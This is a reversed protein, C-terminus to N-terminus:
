APKKIEDALNIVAQVMNKWSYKQKELRLHPIFFDEGLEYFNVIAAAIHEADPETILGTKKEVVMAPLGGVNTVITPKEFYYALPTVGSQTANRYPQIVVDAARMYFKVESDTIFSTHLYLQGALDKQAIIDQYNKEDDYFEGAVLLKVGTAASHRYKSKLIEMAELLIDLGKYKRIFGFFLIVKESVPIGLHKRADAKPTLEGFNDFLPHPVLHAPKKTNFSHLDKLVNESMVIFADCSKLFYKTFLNDGPRKEHPIINDAICIIKTHNNKRIIRLITGLAPGMFPIWFRVFIIDPKAKKLKNGVRIWNFPNISNIDPEIILDEPPKEDSYQTKGPFLLTPYQLSFSYISCDHGELIFEKALRQNFTALGGRLPYGPGIIM